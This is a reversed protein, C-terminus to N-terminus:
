ADKSSQDKSPDKPATKAPNPNGGLDPTGEGLMPDEPPKAPGKMPVGFRAAIADFDVNDGFAAKAEKAANAAEKLATAEQARDAAPAVVWEVRVPDDLTAENGAEAVQWAPLGQTNICHALAQADSNILDARIAAHIGANSFGTGGDVLVKSGALVVMIELNAAEIEQGFVEWGRGNTELLKIDWGVPLQFVTNLGWAILQDVWVSREVEGAGAAATGVIAPNALKGAFNARALKSHEKLIFERGLAQWSAHNWPASTAATMLM